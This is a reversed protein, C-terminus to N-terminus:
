DSRKKNMRAAIEFFAGALVLVITIKKALTWNMKENTFFDILYVVVTCIIGLTLGGWIANRGKIFLSVLLALVALAAPINWYLSDFM